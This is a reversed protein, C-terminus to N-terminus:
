YARGISIRYETASTAKTIGVLTPSIIKCWPQPLQWPNWRWGKQWHQCYSGNLDFNGNGNRGLCCRYSKTDISLCSGELKAIAATCVLAAMMMPRDTFLPSLPLMWPQWCFCSLHDCWQWTHWVRWRWFALFFIVNHWRCGWREDCYNGLISAVMCYKM